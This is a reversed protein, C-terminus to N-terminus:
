DVWLVNAGELETTRDWYIKLGKKYLPLAYESIKDDPCVAQLVGSELDAGRFKYDSVGVWRNPFMQVIEDWSLRKGIAENATHM